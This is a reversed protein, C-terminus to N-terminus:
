AASDAWDVRPVDTYLREIEYFNRIETLFVHVVIDGYDILVWQQEKVGEMRLPSRGTLERVQTEVEDVLARVLRRNSGSLVVFYECIKLVEGVEMVLIDSAQKDDAVRAVICALELAEQDIM